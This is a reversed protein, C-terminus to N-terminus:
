ISAPGSAPTLVLSSGSQIGGFSRTRKRERGSARLVANSEHDEFREFRGQFFRIASFERQQADGVVGVGSEETARGFRRRLDAFLEEGVGEVHPRLRADIEAPANDEVRAVQVEALHGIGPCGDLARDAGHEIMPERGDAEATVVGDGPRDHLAESAPVVREADEVEVGVRVEVVVEPVVGARVRRGECPDHLVAQHVPEDLHSDARCRAMLPRLGPSKPYLHDLHPFKGPIDAQFEVRGDVNRHVDVPQVRRVRRADRM